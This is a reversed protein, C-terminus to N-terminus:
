VQVYFFKTIEMNIMDELKLVGFKPYLLGTSDRRSCFLCARIIKNQLISLKQLHSKCARGWNLLSYQLILNFM